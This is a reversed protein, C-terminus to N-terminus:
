PNRIVTITEDTPWVGTTFGFVGPTQTTAQFWTGNASNYLLLDDHGDLNFDTVNVTWGPAWVGPAFAFSGPSLTTAAFWQGNVTNYLFLDSRGDGNFDAARITWGPAWLGGVYTASTDTFQVTFWHGAADYLFLDTRGDGDFDAPTITWADAWRVDGAVYSFSADPQTMVRFWRGHNIDAAGADNYIFLDTRGNGDFDAPYVHWGPAWAGTTYVFDDAGSVTLCMFWQGTNSNYLFVDSRGDGNFDGVTPTWGAAWRYGFFSFNGGGINTAKFFSGNAPNYLFLDALGDGNFDAPTITWGPAWLGAAITSFTGQNSTRISWAGTVPDYLFADGVGDGNFDIAPSQTGAQGVSVTFGAVQISGTRSAEASNPAVAYVVGLGHNSSGSGTLIQIWPVNTTASWGCDDAAANVQITRTGGHAGASDVGPSVSYTCPVGAQSFPIAVDGLLFQVSRSVSSANAAAVFNITASGTGTTPSTFSVWPSTGLLAWPCSAGTTVTLTGLGGSFPLTYGTPAVGYTCAPSGSAIHWGMDELTTRLITGPDHIAEASALAPTMLSDPNGAPYTSEDLHSFSSGTVFTSPAYLRAGFNGVAATTLPGTFFLSGATLESALTASPNPFSTTDLVSRWAGDRVNRDFAMPTNTGFGWSGQGGSVDGSGLFGLGHALEHLVVTVFDYTGAPAQGDTGYYWSFTSSFSADIDEQGPVSRPERSSIPWRSHIGPAPRAM